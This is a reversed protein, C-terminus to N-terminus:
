EKQKLGLLAPGFDRNFVDPGAVRYINAQGLLNPTVGSLHDEGIPLKQALPISFFPFSVVHPLLSLILVLLFFDVPPNPNVVVLDQQEHPNSEFQDVGM